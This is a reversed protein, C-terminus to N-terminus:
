HLTWTGKASALHEMVSVPETVVGVPTTLVFQGAADVKLLMGDEENTAQLNQASVYIGASMADMGNVTYPVFESGEAVLAADTLSAYLAVSAVYVTRLAQVQRTAEKQSYVVDRLELMNQMAVNCDSELKEKSFMRM